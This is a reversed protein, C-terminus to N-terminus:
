IQATKTVINRVSQANNLVASCLASQHNYLPRHLDQGTLIIKCITEIMDNAYVSHSQQIIDNIHIMEFANADLFTTKM